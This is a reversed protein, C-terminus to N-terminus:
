LFLSNWMSLSYVYKQGVRYMNKANKIYLLKRKDITESEMIETVM